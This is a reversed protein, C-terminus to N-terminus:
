VRTKQAAKSLEIEIKEGRIHSGAVRIIFPKWYEYLQFDTLIKWVKEPKSRIEIRTIIEKM